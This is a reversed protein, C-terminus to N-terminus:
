GKESGTQKDYDIDIHVKPANGVKTTDGLKDKNKLGSKLAGSPSVINGHEADSQTQAVEKTPKARSSPKFVGSMDIEEPYYISHHKPM